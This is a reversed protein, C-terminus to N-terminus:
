AVAQPKKAPMASSLPMTALNKWFTELSEVGGFLTTFITLDALLINGARQANPPMWIFSNFETNGAQTFPHPRDLDIPQRTLVHVSKTDDTTLAYHPLHLHFNFTAVGDLLGLKDLDKNITLPTIQKTGKVLAPRLGFQNIVPVGLAKMMSRTYQGFRQQRPVLEDGHHTYELQRQQLDETFGVDHHPGLLLCTGERQLWKRVAEIEDSAAEQESLLHDLGFVMLTDTDALIRDDIPLKYGAQDIRQFVAVPHGTVEGVVEQFALTSRHFLELTGAIGQLFNMQDWETGEYAPWAVRRVETMTSFRNDLQTVDRNTEWPYSWTWYISVRRKGPTYKRPAHNQNYTRPPQPGSSM